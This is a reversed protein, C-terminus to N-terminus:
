ALFYIFIVFVPYVDKKPLPLRKSGNCWADAVNKLEEATLVDVHQAPTCSGSQTKSTNGPLIYRAGTALAHYSPHGPEIKFINLAKQFEPKSELKKIWDILKTYPNLYEKKLHADDKYM